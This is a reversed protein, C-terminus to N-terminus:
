CVLLIDFIVGSLEKSIEKAGQTWNCQFSLIFQILRPLVLGERLKCCTEEDMPNKQMLKFKRLIVQLFTEQVLPDIMPISIPTDRLPESVQVLVRLLEGVRRLCDLGISEATLIESMCQLGHNIFQNTYIDSHHAISSCVFRQHSM